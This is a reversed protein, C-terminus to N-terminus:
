VSRWTPSDYFRCLWGVLSEGEQVNWIRTSLYRRAEGFITARFRSGYRVSVNQSCSLLSGPPAFPFPTCKQKGVSGLYILCAQTKVECLPFTRSYLSNSWVTFTESVHVTFSHSVPVEFSRSGLVRPPPVLPPSFRLCGFQLGCAGPVRTCSGARSRSLVTVIRARSPYSFRSYPCHSKSIAM